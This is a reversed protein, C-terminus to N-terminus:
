NCREWLNRFRKGAMPYIDDDNIAVMEALEEEEKSLMKMEAKTNPM